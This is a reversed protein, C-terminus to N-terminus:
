VQFEDLTVEDVLPGGGPIVGPFVGDPDTTEWEVYVINPESGQDRARKRYRTVKGVPNGRAYSQAIEGATRIKSSVRMDDIVFPEGDTYIAFLADAATGGTPNTLSTFEEVLEGDLYYRITSNTVSRTIALHHPIWLNKTELVANTTPADHNVGSGSEWFNDLKLSTLLRFQILANDAEAGGSGAYQFFYLNNSPTYSGSTCDNMFRFWLEVTLEGTQCLDFIGDRLFGWLGGTSGTIGCSKGSDRILPGMVGPRATFSNPQLPYNGAEDAVRPPDDFRWLAFTDSDLTHRYDAASAAIEAASREKSSLRMDAMAGFFENGQSADAGLYLNADTGGSANTDTYSEKFDGDVYIKSTRNGTAVVNSVALHYWTKNSIYSSATTFSASIGAGHEWFLTIKGDTAVQVRQLYNTAETDGSGSYEFVTHAAPNTLDEIYIWVEVTFDGTLLSVLSPEGSRGFNSAYSLGRFWRCPQKKGGPGYSIPPVYVWNSPTSPALMYGAPVERTIDTTEMNTMTGDNGNGSHDVITPYTDGDGCRWYGVINTSPALARPDTPVGSNYLATVHDSTLETDYVVVEDVFGTYASSSLSADGIEFAATTVMSASLADLNTTTAASSGDISILLGSAASSGDYTIVCHHWDGDNYASTTTKQLYNGGSVSNVLQVRLAGVTGSGIFYVLYGTNATSASMKSLIYHWNTSSTKFWFSISFADTREFSLESANGMTVYENTGGFDLSKKSYLATASQPNNLALVGTDETENFRWLAFTDSDLEHGVALTRLPQGFPQIREPATLRGSEVSVHGLSLSRFEDTM